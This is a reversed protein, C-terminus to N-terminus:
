VCVTDKIDHRLDGFLKKRNEEEAEENIGTYISIINKLEQAYGCRFERWSPNKGGNKEFNKSELDTKRQIEDYTEKACGRLGNLMKHLSKGQPDRLWVKEMIEEDVGLICFNNRSSDSCAYNLNPEGGNYHDNYVLYKAVKLIGPYGEELFKPHKKYYEKIGEEIVENTLPYNNSVPLNLIRINISYNNKIKDGNVNDGNINSNNIIEPKSYKLGKVEGSLEHNQLKHDSIITKLKKIKNNLNNIVENMNEVTEEKEELLQKIEDLQYVLENMREKENIRQIELEKKQCTESHKALSGNRYFSLNCWKCIFSPNPLDIVGKENRKKICKKATNM